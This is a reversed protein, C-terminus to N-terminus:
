TTAPVAVLTKEEEKKCWGFALLQHHVFKFKLSIKNISGDEHNLPEDLSKIWKGDLRKPWMIMMMMIMIQFTFLHYPCEIELSLSPIHMRLLLLVANLMFQFWWDHFRDVFFFLFFARRRTSRLFSLFFLSKYRQIKCCVNVNRNYQGDLRMAASRNLVLLRRYLSQLQDKMLFPHDREVCSLDIPFQLDPFCSLFYYSIILQMIIEREHMCM